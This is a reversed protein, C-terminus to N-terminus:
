YINKDRKSYTRSRDFSDFCTVDDNHVYLAFWQTGIDSYEDLNIINCGM